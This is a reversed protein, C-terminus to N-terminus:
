RYGGERGDSAGGEAATKLESQAGVKAEEGGSGDDAQWLCTEGDDGARAARVPKGSQDSM